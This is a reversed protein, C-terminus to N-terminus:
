LLNLLESELSKIISTIEELTPPNAGSTLRTHVSENLYAAQRAIVEEHDVLRHDVHFQSAKLPVLAGNPVRVVDNLDIIRHRLEVLGRDATVLLMSRGQVDVIDSRQLMDITSLHVLDWSAGWLDDLPHKGLKILKDTYAVAPGQPGVLRDQAVQLPLPCALRLEDAMWEVFETYLQVRQKAGFRGKAQTWVCALKILSAYYAQQEFHYGHDHESAPPDLQHLQEVYAARVAELSAARHVGGDFWANVAAIINRGRDWRLQEAGRENLLELLGPGPLVDMHALQLALQQVSTWLESNGTGAAARELDVLVSADLMVSHAHSIPDVSGRGGLFRYRTSWSTESVTVVASVGVFVRKAKTLAKLNFRRYRRPRVLLVEVTGQSEVAARWRPSPQVVSAAALSRRNLEITITQSSSVVVLGTFPREFPPAESAPGFGFEAALARFSEPRWAVLRGSRTIADTGHILLVPEDKKFSAVLHLLPAVEQQM